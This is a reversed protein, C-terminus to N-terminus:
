YVETGTYYHSLIEKYGYGKKAMGDAGYQSMGVGHGSGMSTFTIINKSISITFNASPLGLVERINRGEIIGDGIKMKEVHGGSSRSIIKINSANIDGFSINPYKIKIKDSFENISFSNKENQHTAENEYPSSVSVLYPVATTFVDESNETRGGSSSHFLAQQVLEGKYYLLEEKTADVADCIKKWGDKMWSYGKLEKLESKSRYVQCHTSDCLPADPHSTPNGNKEAKIIRALSYTRAAVSQAKLAEQHFSSPMEGAVVGKVYDEFKISETKKTETRYVKITDPVDTLQFDAQKHPSKNEQPKINDKFNTLAFPMFLLLVCISAIILLAAAAAPKELLSSTLHSIRRFFKQMKRKNIKGIRHTKM